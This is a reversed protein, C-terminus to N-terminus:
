DWDAAIPVVSISIDSDERLRAMSQAGRVNVCRISVQLPCGKERRTRACTLLMTVDKEMLPGELEVCLKRLRSCPCAPPARRTLHGGTPYIYSRGDEPDGLALSRLNQELGSRNSIPELAPPNDPLLESLFSLSPEDDNFFTTHKHRITLSEVTSMSDIIFPFLQSEFQEQETLYKFKLSINLSTITESSDELPEVVSYWSDVLDTMDESLYIFKNSDFRNVYKSRGACEELSLRVPEEHAIQIHLSTFQIVESLSQVSDESEFLKYASIQWKASSPIKLKELVFDIFEVTRNVELVLMKLNPLDVDRNYSSSEPFTSADYSYWDIYIRLLELRPSLTLFKLFRGVDMTSDDPFSFHLQSLNHFISCDMERLSASFRYHLCKLNPAKHSFLTNLFSDPLDRSWFFFMQLNPAPPILYSLSRRTISSHVQSPDAQMHLIRFRHIEQFVLVFTNWIKDFNYRPHTKLKFFVDLLSSGSRRLLEKVGNPNIKPFSVCTWMMSDSLLAYRWWRCVHSASIPPSVVDLLLLPEDHEEPEPTYTYANFIIQRFVDYPPCTFPSPKPVMKTPVPVTIIALGHFVWHTVIDCAM